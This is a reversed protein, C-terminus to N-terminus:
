WRCASGRRERDVGQAALHRRHRADLHRAPGPRVRQRQAGRARAPRRRRDHRRLRGREPDRRDPRPHESRRRRGSHAREHANEGINTDGVSPAAAPMWPLRAHTYQDRCRRARPQAGHHQGGHEEVLKKVIALGLGTGKPKSTVYPDFAQHVIDSPSARRRQRRSQDRRSRCGRWASAATAIGVHAEPQHERRRSRTACCTTCCRACADRTPRSRRCARTSRSSSRWRSRTTRAICSASRARGARERRLAHVDM